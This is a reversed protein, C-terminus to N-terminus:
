GPSSCRRRSSEGQPEVQPPPNDVSRSVHVKCALVHEDGARGAADARRGGPRHGSAARPECQDSQFRVLEGRESDLQAVALASAGANLVDPYIRTTLERAARTGVM